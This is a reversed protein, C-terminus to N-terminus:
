RLRYLSLLVARDREVVAILSPMTGTKSWVAHVLPDSDSGGSVLLDADRLNTVNKVQTRLRGGQKLADWVESGLEPAHITVSPRGLADIARALEGAMAADHVPLTRSERVAAAGGFLPAYAAALTAPSRVSEFALTGLIVSCGSALITARIRGTREALLDSAMRFLAWAGAGAFAGLFPVGLIWRPPFVALAAPSIAPWAVVFVVLMGLLAALGSRDPEGKRGRWWDLAVVALGAGALVVTVTPM